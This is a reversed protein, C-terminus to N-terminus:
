SVAHVVQPVSVASGKASAAVLPSGAPFTVGEHTGDVDFRDITAVKQNKHNYVDIRLPDGIGENDPVSYVVGEEPGTDPMGTAVRKEFYDLADAPIGIRFNGDSRIMGRRVEGNALNTVVVSGQPIEPLTTIELENMKMFNNVM